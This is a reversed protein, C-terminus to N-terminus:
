SANGNQIQPMADTALTDFSLYCVSKKLFANGFFVNLVVVNEAVVLEKQDSGFDHFFMEFLLAANIIVFYNTGTIWATNHVIVDLTVVMVNAFFLSQGGISLQCNVARSVAVIIASIKHLGSKWIHFTQCFDKM